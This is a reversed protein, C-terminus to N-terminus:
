REHSMLFDLDDSARALRFNETMAKRRTFVDDSAFGAARDFQLEAADGAVMGQQDDCVIGNEDLIEPTGVAGANAAM